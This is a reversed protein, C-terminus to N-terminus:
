AQVKGNAQLLSVTPHDSGGLPELTINLSEAHKIFVMERLSPDNVEFVGMDIMVGEVDAWMQYTKGAPPAPLNLVNLLASEEEANYYVVVNADPSLGTGTINM